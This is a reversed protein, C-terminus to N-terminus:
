EDECKLMQGLSFHLQEAIERSRLTITGNSRGNTVMKLASWDTGNNKNVSLVDCSGSESVTMCYNKKFYSLSM